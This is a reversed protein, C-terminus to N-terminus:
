PNVVELLKQFRDYGLRTRKTEAKWDGGSAVGRDIQTQMGRQHHVGGMNNKASRENLFEVFRYKKNGPDQCGMGFRTIKDPLNLIRPFLEATSHLRALTSTAPEFGTERELPPM